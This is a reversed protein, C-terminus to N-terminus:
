AEAELLLRRMYWDAKGLDEVANGKHEARWLYKFVQGKCYAKFGESGLAAKIAQICEIDGQKYHPPHNVLDTM